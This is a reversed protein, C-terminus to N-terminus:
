RTAQNKGLKRELLNHGRQELPTHPFIKRHIELAQAATRIGLDAILAEVDEEDDDRAADLKMALMHEASAGTVVLNPTNFVTRARIDKEHPMFLTANENLWNPALEYKEAIERAAQLVGEKDNEIRGDVDHTTRSRRFGLIMAAGGVIYVHARLKRNGLRESLEEFLKMIADHDLAGNM